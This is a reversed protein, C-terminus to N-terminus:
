QMGSFSHGLAVSFSAQSRNERNRKGVLSNKGGSLPASLLQPQPHLFYRLKTVPHDTPRRLPRQTVPRPRNSSALPTPHRAMTPQVACPANPSPGHGTPHRLPRQTVPPLAVRKRRSTQISYVTPEATRVKKDPRSNTHSTPATIHTGESGTLISPARYSAARYGALTDGRM